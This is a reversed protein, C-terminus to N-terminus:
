ERSSELLRIARRIQAVRASSSPTAKGEDGHYWQFPGETGRKQIHPKTTVM